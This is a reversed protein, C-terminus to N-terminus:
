APGGQKGSLRFVIAEPAEKVLVSEPLRLALGGETLRCDLPVDGDLLEVRAFSDRLPIYMEAEM